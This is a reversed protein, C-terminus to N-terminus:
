SPMGHSLNPVGVEGAAGTRNQSAGAAEGIWAILDRLFSVKSGQPFRTSGSVKMEARSRLRSRELLFLSIRRNEKEGSIGRAPFIRRTHKIPLLFAVPFM